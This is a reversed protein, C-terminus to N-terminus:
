GLKTEYLKGMGVLGLENTDHREAALIIERAIHRPIAEHMNAHKKKDKIKFQSSNNGIGKKKLFKKFRRTILTIDDDDDGDYFSDILTIDDDDDGDYSSDGSTSPEDDFKAKLANGRKNHPNELTKQKLLLEHTMLPRILEDFKM